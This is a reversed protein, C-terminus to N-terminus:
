QKEGYIALRLGRRIRALMELNSTVEFKCGRGLLIQEVDSAIKLCGPCPAEIRVWYVAPRGKPRDAPSVIAERKIRM